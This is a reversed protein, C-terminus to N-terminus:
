RERDRYLDEDPEDDVEEGCNDCYWYIYYQDEALGYYHEGQEIKSHECDKGAELMLEQNIESISPYADNKMDYIDPM